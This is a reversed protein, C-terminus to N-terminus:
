VWIARAVLCLKLARVCAFIVQAFLTRVLTRLHLCAQCLVRCTLRQLVYSTSAELSGGLLISCHWLFPGVRGVRHNDRPKKVIRHSLAKLLASLVDRIM